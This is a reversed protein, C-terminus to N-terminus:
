EVSRLVSVGETEVHVVLELRDPVLEALAAEHLDVVVLDSEDAVTGEIGRHDLREERFGPVALQTLPLLLALHTTHGRHRFRRRLLRGRRGRARRSSCPGTRSRHDSRM